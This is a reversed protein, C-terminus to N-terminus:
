TGSALRGCLVKQEHYVVKTEITVDYIPARTRCLLSFSQGHLTWYGSVFEGCQDGYM